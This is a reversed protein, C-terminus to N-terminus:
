HGVIAPLGQWLVAVFSIAANLAGISLVWDAVADGKRRKRAGAVYVFLAANAALSALTLAGASLRSLPADASSIVDFVSAIGYVGGFHVAWILLGGLMLLWARM